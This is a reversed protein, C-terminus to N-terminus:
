LYQHNSVSCYSTVICTKVSFSLSLTIELLACLNTKKRKTNESGERQLRWITKLFVNKIMIVSKGLAVMMIHIRFISKNLFCAAWLNQVLLMAHLINVINSHLWHIESKLGWDYLSLPQNTEGPLRLQNTLSQQLNCPSTHHLILFRRGIVTLEPHQCRTQVSTGSVDAFM